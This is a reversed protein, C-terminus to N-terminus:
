QYDPHFKDSDASFIYPRARVYEHLGSHLLRCQALMDFLIPAVVVFLCYTELLECKDGLLSVFYPLRLCLSYVSLSPHRVLVIVNLLNM